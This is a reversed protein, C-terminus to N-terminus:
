RPNGDDDFTAIHPNGDDDWQVYRGTLRELFYCVKDILSEILNYFM